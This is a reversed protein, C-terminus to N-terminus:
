DVPFTRTLEILKPYGAIWYINRLPPPTDQHLGFERRTAQVLSRDGDLLATLLIEIGVVKTEENDKKKTPPRGIVCKENNNNLSREYRESRQYLTDCKENNM